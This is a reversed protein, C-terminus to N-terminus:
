GTWWDLTCRGEQMSDLIVPLCLHGPGPDVLMARWYLTFGGEQMSVLIDPLCLHGPGLDVAGKIGGAILKESPGGTYQVTGLTGQLSLGLDM